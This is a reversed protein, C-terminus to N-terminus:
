FKVKTEDRQVRGGYNSASKSPGDATTMPAVVDYTSARAKLEDGDPVRDYRPQAGTGVVDDARGGVHSLVRSRPAARAVSVDRRM